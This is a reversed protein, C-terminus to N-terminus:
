WLLTSAPSELFSMQVFLIGLCYGSGILLLMQWTKRERCLCIFFNLHCSVAIHKSSVVSSLSKSLVVIVTFTNSIDHLNRYTLPMLWFVNVMPHASNTLIEPYRPHFPSLFGENRLKRTDTSLFIVPGVAELVQFLM